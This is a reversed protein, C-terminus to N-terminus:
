KSPNISVPISGRRPDALMSFDARILDIMRRKRVPAKSPGRDTITVVHNMGAKMNLASLVLLFTLVFPKYVFHLKATL